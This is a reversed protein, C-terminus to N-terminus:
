SSTAHEPACNSGTTTRAKRLMESPRRHRVTPALAQIECIGSMGCTVDPNPTAPECAAGSAALPTSPRASTVPAETAAGLWDDAPPGVAGAVCAVVVAPDLPASPRRTM